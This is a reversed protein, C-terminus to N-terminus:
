RAPRSRRVPSLQTVRARLRRRTALPITAFAAAVALDRVRPRGRRCAERVLFWAGKRDGDAAAAFVGFSTLFGAYGRASFLHRNASAWEWREHWRGQGGIAADGPASMAYVSLVDPIMKVTAGAEYVCRLVWDHDQHRALDERFPTEVVLDRRTVLASTQLHGDGDFLGRRCFLYESLHTSSEPAFRPWVYERERTRAVFRHSLIVKADGAPAAALSKSVKDPHWTDDDDLFAIWETNATRAGFNRAANAGRAAEPLVRVTVRVDDALPGLREGIEEVTTRDGVVNVAVICDRQLLASEVAAALTDRRGSTPVIATITAASASTM